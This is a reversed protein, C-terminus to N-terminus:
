HDTSSVWYQEPSWIPFFSIPQAHPVVPLPSVHVPSQHLFRLSLSWKSSGLASPLIINPHIKLFHSTPTHVPDLQSLIPVPPPCKHIRYHVKPNWLIRPIKQSASFRNAEWSTSQVMSHTLSPTLLYTILYTFLYTILHTLLYTLLFTFLYTILHTLLYTLLYSLFYTCIEMGSSVSKWFSLATERRPFRLRIPNKFVSSPVSLNYRFTSVSNDSSAAYHSLLACNEGLERRFGSVVFSTVQWAKHGM